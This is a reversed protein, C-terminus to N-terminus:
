HSSGQIEGEEPDLAIVTVGAPPKLEFIGPLFERNTSLESFELSATTQLKPIEIGFASPFRPEQDDFRAYSIKLFLEDSDFYRVEELNRDSDFELEQRHNANSRILLWGGRDLAFTEEAHAIILPAQYLLVSVLDELRLPIRAFRGLNEASAKGTYYRNQTPMLVSLRESNAALTLLPTGFPSLTEARLHGPQEALIVQTGSRSGEETRVKVKALGQVSHVLASHEQWGQLLSQGVEDNVATGSFKSQLPACASLLMALFMLLNFLSKNKMAM